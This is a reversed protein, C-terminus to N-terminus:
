PRVEMAMWEETPVIQTVRFWLANLKAIPMFEIGIGGQLDIGPMGNVMAWGFPRGFYTDSEVVHDDVLSKLRYYETITM